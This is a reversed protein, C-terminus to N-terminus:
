GHPGEPTIPSHHHPDHADAVFGDLSSTPYDQTKMDLDPGSSDATADRRFTDSSAAPSLHVDRVV